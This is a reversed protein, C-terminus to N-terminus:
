RGIIRVIESRVSEACGWSLTVGAGGHGYNHVLHRGGSLVEIDLRVGDRVPRLGVRHGLVPAGALRPEAAVCLRVIRDATAPDPRLSLAGRQQTGGLVVLPGHPFIYTVEAPDEREGVFFESLGPNAAIVVQGRVATLGGDPVLERAGIGACNVIVPAAWQDEAESLDRLAPGLQLRGGKAVLSSLLYDLYRTMDVVPATYRWGAAFGCPLEGPECRTAPGAGSTFAPPEPESEGPTAVLGAMEAVGAAPDPALARFRELTHAAWPGVREDAGVLHPGWLAGAAASTTRHPPDAAYVDVAFGAELLTIASSLGCVGAGIVLVDPSQSTVDPVTGSKGCPHGGGARAV